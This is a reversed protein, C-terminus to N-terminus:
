RICGGHYLCRYIIKDNFLIEERGSFNDLKGDISNQYTWDGDKFMKPGRVPILDDYEQLLAKKLFDYVQKPTYRSDLIFGYYNAGWVPAEKKYVVEEGIFDGAGFYTDHYTLDGKQYELDESKLRLSEIKKGDGAYTHTNAGILFNALEKLNISETSMPLHLYHITSKTTEDPTSGADKWIQGRSSGSCMIFNHARGLVWSTSHKPQVGIEGKPRSLEIKGEWM